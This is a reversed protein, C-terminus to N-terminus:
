ATASRRRTYTWDSTICINQLAEMTTRQILTGTSNLEKYVVREEESKDNLCDLFKLSIAFLLPVGLM